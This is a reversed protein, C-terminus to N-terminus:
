HPNKCYFVLRASRDKPLADETVASLALWTAGPVHGADYVGKNNVDFVHLKKAASDAEVQDPTLEALPAEEALAPGGLWLFMTSFAIFLVNRMAFTYHGARTIAM